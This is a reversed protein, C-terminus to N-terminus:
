RVEQLHLLLIRRVENIAAPNAQVSHGSRVVLESEAEELRASEYKVVGDEGTEAPGDGRVAIISHAHVTPAVPISALTRLWPSRPSMSDLSTGPATPPHVLADRDRAILEGYFRVLQLPLTIFGALWRSARSLTLYSGRHPTAIFAM